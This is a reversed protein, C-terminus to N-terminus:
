SKRVFRRGCIVTVGFCILALSTPEPVIALHYAMNAVPYIADSGVQNAPSNPWSEPTDYRAARSWEYGAGDVYQGNWSIDGGSILDGWTDVGDTQASITYWSGYWLGVESPLEVWRYGNLLPADTGAPVTVRAVEVSDPGGNGGTYWLSVEHSNALGDGDKDYYGLWNVYPWLSGTTLFVGGAQGVHGNQATSSLDITPTFLMSGDATQSYVAPTVALYAVAGIICPIYKTKM